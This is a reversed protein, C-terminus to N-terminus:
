DWCAGGNELTIRFMGPHGPKALFYYPASSNLCATGNGPCVSHVRGRSMRRLDCGEGDGMHCEEEQLPCSYPAREREMREAEARVSPPLNSMLLEQKRREAADVRQAPRWSPWGAFQLLSSDDHRLPVEPAKCGGEGGLCVASGGVAPAFLM